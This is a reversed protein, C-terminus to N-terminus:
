AAGPTGLRLASTLRNGVNVWDVVNWFAAIYDPRKNQFKLYYAHEWVDLVLLPVAGQFTKNEHKEVPLVMLRQGLPEWALVAWGSGQIQGAAASMQQKLVDVSGFAAAIRGALEGVPPGSGGPRMNAWYISHLAHGSGNFAINDLIPRIGSVDAGPKNLAALKGLADNLGKVYAAHHRDHHIRITEGDIHPELADAPYPLPPLTYPVPAAGPPVPMAEAPAAPEQAQAQNLLWGATAAAAGLTTIVERRSPDSM